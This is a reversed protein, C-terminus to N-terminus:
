DELTGDVFITSVCSTFFTVSIDGEYIEDKDTPKIVEILLKCNKKKVKQLADIVQQVTM